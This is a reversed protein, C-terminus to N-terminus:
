CGVVCGKGCCDLWAPVPRTANVQWANTISKFENEGSAMAQMRRRWSLCTSSACIVERIRRKSAAQSRMQLIRTTRTSATCLKSIVQVATFSRTCEIESVVLSLLECIRTTRMM